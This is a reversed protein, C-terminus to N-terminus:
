MMGPKKNLKAFEVIKAIRGPRTEAKKASNLWDIYLRRASLPFNNFNALSTEDYSLQTILDEPIVLDV